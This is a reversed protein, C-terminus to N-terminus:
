FKVGIAISLGLKAQDKILDSLGRTYYLAPEFFVNNTIHYTYGVEFRCSSLWDDMFTHRYGKYALGGYMAEWFYYKAGVEVNFEAYSDEGKPSSFNIGLGAMVAFNDAIFYSSRVGFDLNFNDLKDVGSFGLDLGSFSASLTKGGKEFLTKKDVQNKEDKTLQANATTVCLVVVFMMLIVKKM